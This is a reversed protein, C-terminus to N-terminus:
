EPIKDLKKKAYENIIQNKYLNRRIRFSFIKEKFSIYGKLDCLAMVNIMELYNPYVDCNQNKPKSKVCIIYREEVNEKRKQM